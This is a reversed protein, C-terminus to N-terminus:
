RPLAEVQRPLMPPFLRGLQPMFPAVGRFLPFGAAVAAHLPHASCCRFPCAPYHADLRAAEAISPPWAVVRACVLARHAGLLATPMCALASMRLCKLSLIGGRFWAHLRPFAPPDLLVVCESTCSNWLCCFSNRFNSFLFSSPRASCASRRTEKESASVAERGRLPAISSAAEREDTFVMWVELTIKTPDSGDSDSYTVRSFAALPVSAIRAADM